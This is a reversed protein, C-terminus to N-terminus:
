KELNWIQTLKQYKNEETKNQETHCDRPGCRWLCRYQTSELM